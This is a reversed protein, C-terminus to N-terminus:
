ITNKRAAPKNTQAEVNRCVTKWRWNKIDILQGCAWGIWAILQLTSWNEYTWDDRFRLPKVSWYTILQVFSRLINSWDFKDINFNLWLSQDYLSPWNICKRNRCSTKADCELNNDYTWDDRILQKVSWYTILQVVARSWNLWISIRSTFTLWIMHICSTLSDLDFCQDTTTKMEFWDRLRDTTLQVVRNKEDSWSTDINLPDDYQNYPM